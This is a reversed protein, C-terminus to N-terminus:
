KKEESEAKYPEPEELWAVINTLYKREHNIRNDNHWTDSGDFFCADVLYKPNMVNNPFYRTVLYTGAFNPLRESVPIWSQKPTVSPLREIVKRIEHYCENSDEQSEYFSIANLESMTDLVAQRSIADECPEQELSLLRTVDEETHGDWEKGCQLEKCDFMDWYQKEYHYTYCGQPTDVGVIFWEGNSNFCYKGDSHKFSKWAKDKNSNVITAFLVARQHYLQNFTHYGDSVEGMNECPEQEKLWESIVVLSQRWLNGDFIEGGNVKVWGHNLFIEKAKERNM